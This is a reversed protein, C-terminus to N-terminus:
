KKDIVKGRASNKTNLCLPGSSGLAGPFGGLLKLTVRPSTVGGQGMTQEGTFCTLVGAGCTESPNEFQLLRSTPNPVKGERVRVM